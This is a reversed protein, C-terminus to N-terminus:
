HHDHDHDKDHGQERPAAPAARHEVAHPAAHSAPAAHYTPAHAPAHATERAATHVPARAPTHANHAYGEHAVHANPDHQVVHPTAHATGHAYGHADHHGGFDSSAYGHPRPPARYSFHRHEWRDRDHYWSRTRYHSDWYAGLAFAIVPIGIRPGYDTVIVRQGEYEEQLYTGAVWGRDPGAIVDCWSWGDICGQISVEEGPPLVTIAPYEVDPGARLNVDAVVFGDYAHAALPLLIAFPITIWAWNQM